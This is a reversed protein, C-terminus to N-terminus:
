KKGLSSSKKEIFYTRILENCQAQEDKKEAGRPMHECNNSCIHKLLNKLKPISSEEQSSYTITSDM